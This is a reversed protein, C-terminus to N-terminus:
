HGPELQGILQELHARFADELQQVLAYLGTATDRTSGNLQRLAGPLLPIAGKGAAPSASPVAPTAGSSTLAPPTSAATTAASPWTAPTVPIDRSGLFHVGGWALVVVAIPVLWRASVPRM